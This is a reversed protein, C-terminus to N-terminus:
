FVEEDFDIGVATQYPNSQEINQETKNVSDGVIALIFWSDLNDSEEISSINSGLVNIPHEPKNWEEWYDVDEDSKWSIFKKGFSDSFDGSDDRLYGYFYKGVSQKSVLM